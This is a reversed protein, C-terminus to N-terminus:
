SFLCPELWVTDSLSSAVTVEGHKSFLEKLEEMSVRTSVNRVHLSVGDRGGHGSM